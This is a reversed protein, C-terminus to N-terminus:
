VAVTMPMEVYPGIKRRPKPEKVDCDAHENANAMETEIPPTSPVGRPPTSVSATSSRDRRVRTGREGSCSAARSAAMIEATIESWISSPSAAM